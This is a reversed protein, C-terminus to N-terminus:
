FSRLNLSKLEKGDILVQGEAPDYFREILQVCTSKGSGSPGVIATTKGKEFEINIKHLVNDNGKPYKFTVDDFKINGELSISVDEAKPDDNLIEPKRNFITFAEYGNLRGAAIAKFNPVGMGLGFIGM